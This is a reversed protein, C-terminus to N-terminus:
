LRTKIIDWPYCVTWCTLGGVGGATLLSIVGLDEQRKNQMRALMQKTLNYGGFQGAFSPVERIITIMLGRNLALFGEDAIIKRTADM